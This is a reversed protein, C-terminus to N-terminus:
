VSSLSTYNGRPIRYAEMPRGYLWGQGVQCPAIKSLMIAQEETEVGEFILDIQMNQAIQCIEHLLITGTSQTTVAQTFLKDVKIADVPLQSLYALGSYGSGFDDLFVRYGAQRLANVKMEIKALEMTSRETLELVVRSPSIAYRATESELFDQFMDSELDQVSINISVYFENEDRLRSLLAYLTKSIIIKTIDCILKDSEALEIFVDPSIVNGEEDSWRALAEVGIVEGDSMRVLPQFVTSIYGNKVDRRLQRLLPRSEVFFIFPLMIVGFIIGGCIAIFFISYPIEWEAIFPGVVMVCLNREINCIRKNSSHSFESSAIKTQRADVNKPSNHFIFSGDYTEIRSTNFPYRNYIDAMESKRIFVIANDKSIGRVGVNESNRSLSSWYLSGDNLIFDSHPLLSPPSNKGFIVDCDVGADSVYGLNTIYTANLHIFRLKEIYGESCSADEISQIEMLTKKAEDEIMIIRTLLSEGYDHLERDAVEIKFVCIALLTLFFGLVSVLTFALINKKRRAFKFIIIWYSSNLLKNM